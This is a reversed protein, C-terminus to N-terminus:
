ERWTFIFFCCHQKRIDRCKLLKYGQTLWLLQYLQQIVQKMTKIPNYGEVIYTLVCTVTNLKLGFRQRVRLETFTGESEFNGERAAIKDEFLGLIM